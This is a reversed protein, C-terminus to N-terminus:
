NRPLVETFSANKIQLIVVALTANIMKNVTEVMEKTIREDFTFSTNFTVFIISHNSLLGATM